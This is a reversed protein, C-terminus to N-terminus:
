PISPRSCVDYHMCICLSRLTPWEFDVEPSKAEQIINPERLAVTM